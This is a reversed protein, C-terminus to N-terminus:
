NIKFDAHTIGHVAGATGAPTGAPALVVHKGLASVDDKANALGSYSNRCSILTDNALPFDILDLRVLTNTGDSKFVGSEAGTPDILLFTKTQDLISYMPAVTSAGGVTILWDVFLFPSTTEAPETSWPTGDENFFAHKVPTQNPDIAQDSDAVIVQVAHLNDYSM